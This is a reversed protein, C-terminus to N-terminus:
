SRWQHQMPQLSLATWSFPSAMVLLALVMMILESIQPTTITATATIRFPVGCLVRTRGTSVKPYAALKLKITPFFFSYFVLNAPTSWRNAPRLTLVGMFQKGRGMWWSSFSTAIPRSPRNIQMEAGGCSVHNNDTQEAKPKPM